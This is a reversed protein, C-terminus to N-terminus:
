VYKPFNLVAYEGHHERALRDYAEAASVECKWVGGYIKKGYNAIQVKWKNTEQDWSVGKYSSTGGRSVTNRMNEKHNCVRINSKRNDLTDGNIHDVELGEPANTLLRHMIATSSVAYSKGRHTRVSWNRDSLMPVDEADVICVMGQTLPINGKGDKIYGTRRRIDAVTPSGHKKLRRYHKDCYGRAVHKRDCDDMTCKKEQWQKTATKNM